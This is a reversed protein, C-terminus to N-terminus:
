NIRISIIDQKNDNKKMMITINFGKGTNKLKGAMYMTNGMERQSTLEFGKINNDTFFAKLALTAQNKGMNKVEDKELLKLDIFSDFYNALQEVNATKLAKVVGDNDVQMTFSFSILPIVFLLFLKKM